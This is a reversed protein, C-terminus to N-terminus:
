FNVENPHLLSPPLLVVMKSQGFVYMHCWLVVGYVLKSIQIHKLLFMSFLLREVNDCYAVLLGLYKQYM